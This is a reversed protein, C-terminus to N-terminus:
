TCKRYPLPANPWYYDCDTPSPYLIVEPRFYMLFFDSFTPSRTSTLNLLTAEEQDPSLNARSSHNQIAVCKTATKQSPFIGQGSMIVNEPVQKSHLSESALQKAFWKAMNSLNEPVPSTVMQHTPQIEYMISVAATAAIWSWCMYFSAPMMKLGNILPM